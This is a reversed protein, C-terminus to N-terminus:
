LVYSFDFVLVEGSKFSVVLYQDKWQVDAPKGYRKSLWFVVKGTGKEKVCSLSTDWQLVGDTHPIELTMNPLQVPSEPTGFDWVQTEANPYYVWVRSGHVTLSAINRDIFKINAKGMLEGTQLSLAQIERAGISYVRSGDKSIKIDELHRPADATLLPEEKEVDWIKIEEDVYWALVLRGNVLQIDRKKTGEVPAQFSAKCVGTFIDWTKVVGDSDSTISINDKAELTISMITVPTLSTSESDTGVPGTLQAGIKWFKVSGDRSASILSSPSSFVLFTIQNTHEVLTEVLQPKPGTINWVYGTSGAVVVVMNGDFSFWCHGALDEIKPFQATVIGSSSNLVTAVKEYHLVLQTGDPSFDAYHGDFTPGAQHGSTDWQRIQHNSKSLLHQPDTPSFKAMYVAPQQEIICYCEGTQTNWLRITGDHSASAITASDVSISVSCVLATHGSFTRIAGGTQMDWLKVTEDDSGSVLSRGDSTFTVSNVEDTHGSLIGTQSGTIADLTIIDRYASGIAVTNDWCSVEFIKTGLSVTRSCLGWRAPLGKVIRVEQLFESSYHGRLWISLPSSPLASHYIHSPSDHIADLYELLFRQSDNTWKCPIGAQISTFM